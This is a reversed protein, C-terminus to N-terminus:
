QYERLACFPNVMTHPYLPYGLMPGLKLQISFSGDDNSELINPTWISKPDNKYGRKYLSHDFGFRVAITNHQTMAIIYCNAVQGDCLFASTNTMSLHWVRKNPRMNLFHRVLLQYVDPETEKFDHCEILNEIITVLIDYLLEDSTGYKNVCISKKKKMGKQKNAIKRIMKKSSIHSTTIHHLAKRHKEKNEIVDLIWTQLAELELIQEAYTMKTYITM